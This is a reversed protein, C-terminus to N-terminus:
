VLDCPAQEEGVCYMSGNRRSAPIAVALPNTPRQLRPGVVPSGSDQALFLGGGSLFHVFDPDDHLCRLTFERYIELISLRYDPM